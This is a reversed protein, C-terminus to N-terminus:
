RKRARLPLRWSAFHATPLSPQSERLFTSSCRWGTSANPMQIALGSVTALLGPRSFPSPLQTARPPPAAGRDSPVRPDNATDLGAARPLRPPTATARHPRDVDGAHAWEACHCHTSQNARCFSPLSIQHGPSAAPPNPPSPASHAFAVACARTKPSSLPVVLPNAIRRSRHLRPIPDQPSVCWFAQVPQQKAQDQPCPVQNRSSPPNNVAPNTSPHQKTEDLPFRSYL